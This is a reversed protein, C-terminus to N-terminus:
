DVYQGRWWAAWGATDYGFRQGTIANLAGIVDGTLWLPDRGTQLRDILTSVTARDGQRNRSVTFLAGLLPDFYKESQKAPVDWNRELYDVPVVSNPNSAMGALLIWKGIQRAPVSYEGGIVGVRNSPMPADLHEALFTDPPSLSVIGRVTKKLGDRGHNEFNAPNSLASKLNVAQQPWDIGDITPLKFPAPLQLNATDTEHPLATGKLGWIMARGDPGAGGVLIQQGASILETPRGGDFVVAIRWAAGDDSTAVYGGNGNAFLASLKGDGAHLDVLQGDASIGTVPESRRGSSRWLTASNGKGVIAFVAGRYATLARFHQKPWGDIAVPRGEKFAVLRTGSPDSLRFYLRGGLVTASQLRSTRRPATAHDYFQSWSAGGDDSVQLGARWASTVAVMSGGWDVLEHVHFMMATSIDLERWESGNTVSVIGHGLSIRPDEHPWYLLGNFILPRGADQSFLHREYRVNGTKPDLSWIDASNHNRGKVSNSFWLRGRYVILNSAVPWPGVEALVDLRQQASVVPAALFHVLGTLILFLVTLRPPLTLMQIRAM